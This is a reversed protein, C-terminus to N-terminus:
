PESARRSLRQMAADIDRILSDVRHSSPLGKLATQLTSGFSATTTQLSASLNAASGSVRQPQQQIGALSNNTSAPGSGPLVRDRGTFYQNYLSTENVANKGGAFPAARDDQPLVALKRARDAATQNTTHTQKESVTAAAKTYHYAARITSAYPLHNNNMAPGAYSVTPKDEPGISQDLFGSISEDAWTV